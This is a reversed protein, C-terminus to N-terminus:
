VFKVGKPEDNRPGFRWLIRLLKRWARCFLSPNFDALRLSKDIAANPELNTVLRPKFNYFPQTSVVTDETAYHEGAVGCNKTMCYRPEICYLNENVVHLSCQVDWTNLHGDFQSEIMSPLFFSVDKLKAMRQSDSKFEPWYKMDFDVKNWRDAWTGWGWCMNRQHLYVDYPYGKPMKAFRSRWANIGWIRSDDKYFELAEDMYQLFYKSVVIDDEVIILRGFRNIVESIAQTINERCGYNRERRVIELRPCVSEKFECFMQYVAGGGQEDAVSRPGDLYAFVPRDTLGLCNKLASLTQKLTDTRKYAILLLPACNKEM